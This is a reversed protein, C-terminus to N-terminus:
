RLSEREILETKVIKFNEKIEKDELKNILLEIASYGLESGNIDVSSLAPKQFKAISINNFGVVSIERGSENVAELIGLALLDDTGVIATVGEKLVEKSLKYGEEITFSEGEKIINRDINIGKVLIGQLYGGLRDRSVNMDKKAGVFGIKKHGKEILKLVVDEMAKFNDNDVWLGEKPNEPRGITVYPFNKDNLNKICKDNVTTSLLCIGDIMNNSSFDNISKILGEEEESFSYMIHYGKEGACISMGKMAQIFFPNSFSDEAERPIIVGLIKTKNIALSRAIVNPKYNLREIAANVKEKTTESIRSDNSLVRSVTSKSVGSLSAVDKITVKM